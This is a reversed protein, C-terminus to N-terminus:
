SEAFAKFFTYCFTGDEETARYLDAIGQQWRVPDSLGAAIAQEGVGEVMAIFTNKSFGEVLTPRSSDVYVMRPTVRIKRFGAQRLLPYLRRGILADGGLQSQLRVLCDVAHVAPDSRPHCYWSGHDGEICVIRGSPKLVRKLRELVAPPDTLHELVFCVFVADFCGDAFPLDFLDAQQFQVNSINRLQIERHAKQLSEPNRDVCVFRSQPNRPAIHITQAGTGCGAELIVSGPEFVTDYHLLEALTDAQDSL